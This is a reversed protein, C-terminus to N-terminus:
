DNGTIGHDGLVAALDDGDPLVVGLHHGEVLAVRLGFHPWSSTNMVWHRRMSASVVSGPGNMQRVERVAM